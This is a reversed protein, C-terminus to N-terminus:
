NNDDLKVVAAAVTTFTGVLAVAEAISGGTVIVAMGLAAGCVLAIAAITNRSM